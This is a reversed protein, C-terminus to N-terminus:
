FFMQAPDDWYHTSLTAKNELKSPNPKQTYIGQLPSLTRKYKIGM